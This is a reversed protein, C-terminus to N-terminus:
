EVGWRGRLVDVRGELRRLRRAVAGAARSLSPFREALRTVGRATRDLEVKLRWMASWLLRRRLVVERFQRRLTTVAGRFGPELQRIAALAESVALVYPDWVLRREEAGPAHPPYPQSWALPVPGATFDSGPALSLLRLASRRGDALTLGSYHYFVLPRDNVRVGDASASIRHRMPNWPALGIGPHETVRVATFRQPWDELYRQDAWRGPEPEFSCWELCRERWWELADESEPSRRFAVSAAQYRGFVDDDTSREPPHGQPVLLISHGRLEELLAGPDAFFMLDADLYVVVDVSADRDLVHGCLCPKATSRYARFWREERVAALQPDAAELEALPMATVGPLGLRDLLTKAEDDMCCVLFRVDGGNRTMSRYLALWHPVYAGDILTCFETAEDV